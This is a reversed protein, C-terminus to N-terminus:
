GGLRSIGSRLINYFNGQSRRDTLRSLPRSGTVDETEESATRDAELQAFAEPNSRELNAEMAPGFRPNRMLKGLLGGWTQPAGPRRGKASLLSFLGGGRSGGMGGGTRESARDQDALVSMVKRIGGFGGSRGPRKDPSDTEDGEPSGGDRGERMKKSLRKALIGSIGLINAM